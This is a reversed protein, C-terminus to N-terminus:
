LQRLTLRFGQAQYDAVIRNALRLLALGAPKFGREIFAEKVM